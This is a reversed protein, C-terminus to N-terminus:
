PLYDWLDIGFSLLMKQLLSLPLGVVNSDSGEIREVILQGAGQIAYGGAKDFSHVAKQYRHAMIPTIPHFLVRTEEVDTLQKDGGLLSIATFVSHWRGALATLSKFAEDPNAPKEYVLGDQYVTTDASIILSDKYLPKLSKAKAMALQMVYEKPDGQFPMTAEDFPPAATIFPLTFCGLIQKRRPSTSGLIIQM